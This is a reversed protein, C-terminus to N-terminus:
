KIKQRQRIFHVLGILCFCLTISINIVFQINNRNTFWLMNNHQFFGIMKDFLVASFVERNIKCISVFLAVVLSVNILKWSNINRVFFISLLALGFSAFMLYSLYGRALSKIVETRAFYFFTKLVELVPPLDITKEFLPDAYFAQEPVQVDEDFFVSEIHGSISTDIRVGEAGGEPFFRAIYDVSSKTERFFGESLRRAEYESVLPKQALQMSLMWPIAFLWISFGIIFYFLTSLISINPHRIFYFILGLCAFVLSFPLVKILVQFFLAFNIFSLSEGAVMSFSLHILSIAVTSVFATAITLIVFVFVIFFANKM